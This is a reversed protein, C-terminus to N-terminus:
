SAQLLPVEELELTREGEMDQLWVTAQVIVLGGKRYESLTAPADPQHVLIQELMRKHKPEEYRPDEPTLVVFAGEPLVVFHREGSKTPDPVEKQYEGGLFTAVQEPSDALVVGLLDGGDPSDYVVFAPM